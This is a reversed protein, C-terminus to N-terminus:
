NRPQRKTQKHNGKSHLLKNTQNPETQKYESKNQQRPLNVLSFM